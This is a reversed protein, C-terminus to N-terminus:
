LSCPPIYLLHNRKKLLSLSINRWLFNSSTYKRNWLASMNEEEEGGRTVQLRVLQPHRWGEILVDEGGHYSGWVEDEDHLVCTSEVSECEDGM